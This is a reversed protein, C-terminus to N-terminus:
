GAAEHWTLKELQLFGGSVLTGVLGSFEAAPTEPLIWGNQKCAECLESVTKKGDCMTLLLPMWPQVTWEVDFPRKVRMKFEEGSLEGNKLIHRATVETGATAVPRAELLESAIRKSRLGTECRLAWEIAEPAAADRMARRLLFPARATETRQIVLVVALLTDVHSKGFVEEWQAIELRGGGSTLAQELAFRRPPLADLVFVAVDFDSQSKGLWDRVTNEFSCDARDMGLTRCYLRGGPKLRGPLAAVIKKLVDEGLQGGASYIEAKKLVPLYPPHVAIRDFVHGEVPQFLDGLAFSVNQIGNLAANFKAYALSRETIDAAWVNKATRAALLAAPATGACLELFDECPAYSTYNLFQSGSKTMAPYVIDNFTTRISHDVNAWRDAAFYLDRLPFLAASAACRASEGADVAILQSQRLAEWVQPSFRSAAADSPLAEGLVFLNILADLSDAIPRNSWPRTSLSVIDLPKEPPIELRRRIAAESFGSQVLCDRLAAFQEPALMRLHLM